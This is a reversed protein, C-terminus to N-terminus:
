MTVAILEDINSALHPLTPNPNPNPTQTQTPPQPQYNPNPNLNLNPNPNPNPNPNGTSSINTTFLQHIFMFQNDQKNTSSPAM